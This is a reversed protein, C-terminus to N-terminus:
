TRRRRRILWQESWHPHKRRTRACKNMSRCQAIATLSKQTFEQHWDGTKTTPSGRLTSIAIRMHHCLHLVRIDQIAVRLGTMSDLGHGINRNRYTSNAIHHGLLVRILGRDSTEGLDRGPGVMLEGLAKAPVANGTRFGDWTSTRSIPTSTSLIFTVAYAWRLFQHNNRRRGISWRTGSRYAFQRREWFVLAGAPPNRDSHHNPAVTWYTYATNHAQSYPLGSTINVGPETSTPRTCSTSASATGLGDTRAQITGLRQTRPRTLPHPHAARRYVQLLKISRRGTM